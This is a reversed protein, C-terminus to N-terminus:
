ILSKLKDAHERETKVLQHIQMQRWFDPFKKELSLYFDATKNEIGIAYRILDKESANLFPPDSFLGEKKLKQIYSKLYEEDVTLSLWQSLVQEFLKKHDSEDQALKVCLEKVKTDPSAQALREYFQKGEQEILIAVQLVYRLHLRKRKKFFTFFMYM